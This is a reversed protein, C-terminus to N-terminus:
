ENEVSGGSGYAGLGGAQTGFASQGREDNHLTFTIGDAATTDSFDSGTREGLYVFSKYDFPKRLDLQYNSWISGFQWSNKPTLAAAQPYDESIYSNSGGATNNVFQDAIKINSEPPVVSFDGTGTQGAVPAVFDNQAIKDSNNMIGTTSSTTEIGTKETDSSLMDIMAKEDEEAVVNVKVIDSTQINEGTGVEAYLEGVTEEKGELVFSVLKDDEESYTVSLIHKESNYDVKADNSNDSIYEVNKPLFISIQEEYSKTDIFSISKKEGKKLELEDIVLGENTFYLGKEVDNSFLVDGLVTISGITQGVIILVTMFLTMFKKTTGM